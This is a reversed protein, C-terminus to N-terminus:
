QAGVLWALATPFGAWALGGLVLISVFLQAGDLHACIRELRKAGGPAIM